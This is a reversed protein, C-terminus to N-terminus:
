WRQWMRCVIILRPPIITHVHTYKVYSHANYHTQLRTNMLYFQPPNFYSILLHTHTHALSVSSWRCVVFGRLSLGFHLTKRRRQVQCCQHRQNRWRACEVPAASFSGSRMTRTPTQWIQWLYASHSILSPSSLRPSQPQFVSLDWKTHEDGRQLTDLPSHSCLTPLKKAM